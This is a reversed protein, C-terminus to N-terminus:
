GYYRVLTVITARQGLHAGLTTPREAEDYLTVDILDM